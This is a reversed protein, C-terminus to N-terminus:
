QGVYIEQTLVKFTSGLTGVAYAVYVTGAKLNSSFPGFVATSTGTPVLAATYSGAPLNAATQQGHALPGVRLEDATGPFFLADV